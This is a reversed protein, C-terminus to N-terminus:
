SIINNRVLQIALKYGIKSSIQNFQDFPLDEHIAKVGMGFVVKFVNYTNDKTEILQDIQKYSMLEDFNEEFCLEDYHIQTEVDKLLLLLNSANRFNIAISHHDAIYKIPLIFHSPLLSQNQVFAGKCIENYGCVIDYAVDKLMTDIYEQTVIPKGDKEKSVFNLKLNGIHKNRL